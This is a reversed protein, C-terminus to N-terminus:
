TNLEGVPPRPARKFHWRRYFVNEPWLKEDFFVRPDDCKCSIHFSSFLAANRNDIKTVTADLGLNDSIFRKVDDSQCTPTLRTIFVNAIKEKRVGAINSTASTNSAANKGSKMQRRRRKPRRFNEDWVNDYGTTPDPASDNPHEIIPPAEPDVSSSRRTPPTSTAPATPVKKVTEAYTTDQQKANNKVTEQLAQLMDSNKNVTATMNFLEKSLRSVMTLLNHVDWMDPLRQLDVAAFKPAEAGLEQFLSIIDKLNTESSKAGKRTQYKIGTIPQAHQPGRNIANFLKLKSDKINVDTFVNTCMHILEECQLIQLKNAIFCLLEDVIVYEAMAEQVVDISNGRVRPSHM